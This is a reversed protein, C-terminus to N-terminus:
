LKLFNKFSYIFYNGEKNKWLAYICSSFMQRSTRKFRKDQFVDQTRAFGMCCFAYRWWPIFHRGQQNWLRWSCFLGCFCSTVQLSYLPYPGWPATVPQLLSATHQTCSCYKGNNQYKTPFWSMKHFASCTYRYWLHVIHFSYQASNTLDAM